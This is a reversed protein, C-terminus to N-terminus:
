GNGLIRGAARLTMVLGAITPLLLVAYATAFAAPRAFLDSPREFRGAWRGIGWRVMLFAILTLGIPDVGVVVGVLLSVAPLSLFALGGFMVVRGVRGRLTRASLGRPVIRDLREALPVAALGFGIPLLNFLCVNLFPL